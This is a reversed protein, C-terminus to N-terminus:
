WFHRDMPHSASTRRCKAVPSSSTASFGNTTSTSRSSAEPLSVPSSPTSGDPAFDAHNIGGYKATALSGKLRLKHPDLYDLRRHREAVVIANIGDPTVYLNYPDEVPVPRGPKATTPDIPTLCGRVARGANNAVWLTKLDWSPVIHQPHRGAKFHDVVRYTAPDIVYESETRPQATVRSSSCGAVLLALGVLSSVAFRSHDQKLV